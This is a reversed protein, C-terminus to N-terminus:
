EDATLRPHPLMIARGKREINDLLLFLLIIVVVVVYVWFKPCEAAPLLIEPVPLLALRALVSTNSDHIIRFVPARIMEQRPLLLITEELPM